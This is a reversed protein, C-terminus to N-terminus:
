EYEVTLTKITWKKATVKVNVCIDEDPNWPGINEEAFKLDVKYIMGAVPQFGTSGSINATVSHFPSTTAETTNEKADLYLKVNFNESTVPTPIFQYAYVKNQGATHIDDKSDFTAGSIADWAWKYNADNTVGWKINGESPATTNAPEEVNTVTMPVDNTGGLTTQNYYNLLGVYKLDIQKYINGLNTCQITGIEIRSVLPAVEIEAGLLTNTTHETDTSPVIAELATDYGYLTVNDFTQQSAATIVQSEMQDNTADTQGGNFGEVWSKLTTNVSYNGIAYVQRVNGPVEHMIYGDEGSTLQGWEESNATSSLTEVYLINTGDSGLLAIDSLTATIGEGTTTENEPDQVARGNGNGTNLGELKIAISQTEGNNLNDEMPTDENSCAFLALSACAMFLGKTLKM